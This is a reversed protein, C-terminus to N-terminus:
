PERAESPIVHPPEDGAVMGALRDAEIREEIRAVRTRSALRVVLGAASAGIAIGLLLMPVIPGGDRM